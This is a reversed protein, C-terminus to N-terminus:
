QEYQEERLHSEFFMTMDKLATTKSKGLWSLSGIIWVHDTGDYIRTEVVGGKERIASELKDLNFRGVAEDESGWMLLMPPQQGDIFTTVQMQPYQDPPGFMDKLDPEEPIFAYPGALGAFAKITSQPKGEAQLYRADAAILAGLHAGSSHGAVAIRDAAGGYVGINDHVWAVAKAADQAFVPFRVDPYKRYGPIAVIYGAKAFTSGVFAYDDKSGSSWRGGYFFVIVNHPTKAADPPLYIDMKLAHAADFPIDHHVVIDDFRAPINALQMGIATCGAVFILSLASLIRFAARM